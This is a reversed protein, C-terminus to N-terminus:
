GGEIAVDLGEVLLDLFHLRSIELAGLSALHTTHFQCDIMLWDQSVLYALAMKSADTVRSFMSEAFFVRGMYVGYLGGVLENGQWVEVSKAHGLSFLKQYAEIMEPHIWTGEPRAACGKMVEYFATDTTIHTGSQKLRRALRRSCHFNAPFLVMRPDPSWWLIPGDLEYWPFIGARYATLLTQPELNGGAALLGDSDADCPDPFVLQSTPASM